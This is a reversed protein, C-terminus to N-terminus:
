TIPEPFQIQGEGAASQLSRSLCGTQSPAAIAPRCITTRRAGAKCKSAGEAGTEDENDWWRQSNERPRGPMHNIRVYPKNLRLQRAYGSCQAM